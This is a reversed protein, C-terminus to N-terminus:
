STKTQTRVYRALSAMLLRCTQENLRAPLNKVHTIFMKDNMVTNDAQKAIKTVFWGPFLVVGSVYADSGSYEKLIEKIRRASAHAQVVPDRDSEFGNILVKKGDYTVTANGKAPKYRVKTEVSFVGGPGILVHDINFGECVIDHIVYYGLPMLETQLLQGVHQEGKLGRVMFTLEKVARRIKYIALIGVLLAVVTAGTPFDPFSFIWRAWEMACYVCSFLTLVIWSMVEDHRYDEIRERLSQGPDRLPALSIPSKTDTKM